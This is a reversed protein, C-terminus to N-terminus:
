YNDNLFGAVDGSDFQKLANVTLQRYGYDPHTRINYTFYSGHSKARRFKMYVSWPIQWFVYFSGSTFEIFLLQMSRDYRCAKINSSRLVAWKSM